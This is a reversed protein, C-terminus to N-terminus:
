GQALLGAGDPAAGAAVTRPLHVVFRAGREPASDVAVSGGMQNVANFVIHLGLGAHGADRRTTFFPDFVQERHEPQIGKGDDACILDVTGPSAAVATVTVVGRRSGDYGHTLANSVLQTVIQELADPYGVIWLGEPCDLHVRHGTAAWSPELTRLLDELCPRLELRQPTGRPQDVAVQKFRQVLEAARITNNVLLDSAERLEHLFRDLERRRLRGAEVQAVIRPIREQLHTSTTLAIGLPTNIEHAVGAVMQGLSALKEVQILHAQTRKLEALTADAREKARRLDDERQIIEAVFHDVARAMDGLEDQRDLGALRSDRPNGALRLTARQLRRLPRTISRAVMYAAGAALLLAASAGTALLTDLLGASRTASAHFSDDLQQASETVAAADADMIAIADNQRVLARTARELGARWAAVAALMEDQILPSIPLAAVRGSLTASDATAAELADTDRRTLAGTTRASLTLAAVALNQTEQGIVNATVSFELLSAVEDQVATYGTTAVKLLREIAPDFRAALGSLTELTLSAHLVGLDEAAAGYVDGSPLGPSQATSRSARALAQQLAALTRRVRDLTVVADRAEFSRELRDAGDSPAAAARAHLLAARVEHLHDVIERSTRLRQDGEALSTLLAGNSAHQRQRARETLALLTREQDAMSHIQADSEATTRSLERMRDSHRDLASRARAVVAAQESGDALAELKALSQRARESADRFKAEHTGREAAASRVYADRAGTAALMDRYAAGAQVAAERSRDAQKLLLWAFLAIFVAFVVPIGGVTAIRYSIRM